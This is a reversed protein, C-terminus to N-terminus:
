PSRLEQAIQLETVVRAAIQQAGPMLPRGILREYATGEPQPPPPPPQPSPVWPGPWGETSM